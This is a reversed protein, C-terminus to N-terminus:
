SRYFCDGGGFNDLTHATFRIRQSDNRSTTSPRTALVNPTSPQSANGVTTSSRATLVYPTSPNEDTIQQINAARNHMTPEIILPEFHNHGNYWVVIPNTVIRSRMNPMAETAFEQIQEVSM